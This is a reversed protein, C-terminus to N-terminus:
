LLPRAQLREVWRQKDAKLLADIELPHTEPDFKELVEYEFASEGRANWENQLSAERHLGNRLTFWCGNKTAGLNKSGGVWVSGTILCRVAYIGIESRQEKFQRITEKRSQRSQMVNGKIILARQRHFLM